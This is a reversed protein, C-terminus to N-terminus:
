RSDLAVAMRYLGMRPGLQSLEPVAAPLPEQKGTVLIGGPRLRALIESLTKLQLAEDFYTFALHRCLILDFTGCPMEKRIDQQRWDIGRGYQERVLYEDNAAVFCDALLEQPLDKLSSRAYRGARARQLMQLNSDTAVIKLAVDPARPAVDHRWIVNITYPEEGSACGASWCRVESRGSTLAANALEFLITNRLRDFVGRDRYFRSITIQCFGDLVALEGPHSTIWDQYADVDALGLEVLRRDIRKCVQRRV